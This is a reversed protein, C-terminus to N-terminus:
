TAQRDILTTLNLGQLEETTPDLNYYIAVQGIKGAQGGPWQVQPYLKKLAEFQETLSKSSFIEMKIDDDNVNTRDFEIDAPLLGKGLTQATQPTFKAKGPAKDFQVRIYYALNQENFEVAYYGQEYNARFGNKTSSSNEAKGHVKEWDPRFLGVGGSALTPPNNTAASTAVAAKASISPLVAAFTATVQVVASNAPTMTAITLAMPAPTTTASDPNNIPPSTPSDSGCAVLDLGLFVLSILFFAKSRVFGRFSM